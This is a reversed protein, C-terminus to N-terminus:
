FSVLALDASSCCRDRISDAALSSGRRIGLQQGSSIGILDNAHILNLNPPKFREQKGRSDNTVESHFYAQLKVKHTHVLFFVSHSYVVCTYIHSQLHSITYSESPLTYFLAAGPFSHCSKDVERQRLLPFCVGPCGKCPIAGTQM